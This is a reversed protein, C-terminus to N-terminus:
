EQYYEEALDKHGSEILKSLVTFNDDEVNMEVDFNVKADQFATILEAKHTPIAYDEQSENLSPETEDAEGPKELSDPRYRDELMFGYKSLTKSVQSQGVDLKNEIESITPDQTDEVETLVRRQNKTLHEWKYSSLGHPNIEFGADDWERLVRYPSVGAAEAVKNAESNSLRNFKQAAMRIKKHMPMLSPEEVVPIPRDLKYGDLGRHSDDASNTIHRKADKHSTFQGECFPCGYRTSTVDDVM